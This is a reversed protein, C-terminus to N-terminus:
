CSRTAPTRGVLLKAPLRRNLAGLTNLLCNITFQVIGIVHAYPIRYALTLVSLLTLRPCTRGFPGVGCFTWDFSTILSLPLWSM